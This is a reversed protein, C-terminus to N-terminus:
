EAAEKKPAVAGIDRSTVARPESELSERSEAHRMSPPIMEIEMGQRGFNEIQAQFKEAESPGFSYGSQQVGEGGEASNEDEERLESQAGSGGNNQGAEEDYIANPKEWRNLARFAAILQQRRLEEEPDNEIKCLLSPVPVRPSKAVGGRGNFQTELGDWFQAKQFSDFWGPGLDAAEQETYAIVGNPASDVHYLTRPWEPHKPGHGEALHYVHGHGEMIQLAEQAQKMALELRGLTQPQHQHDAFLKRSLGQWDM